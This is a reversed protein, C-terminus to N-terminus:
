VLIVQSPSNQGKLIKLRKCLKVNQLEFFNTAKVQDWTMQYKFSAFQGRNLYNQTYLVYSSVYHDEETCGDFYYMFM